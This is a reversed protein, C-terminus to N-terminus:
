LHQEGTTDVFTQQHNIFSLCQPYGLTDRVRIYVSRWTWVPLTGLHRGLSRSDSGVVRTTLDPLSELQPIAKRNLVLFPTSGNIQRREVQEPRRIGAFQLDKRNSIEKQNKKVPGRGVTFHSSELGGPPAREQVRYM